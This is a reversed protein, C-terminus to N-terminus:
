KYFLLPAVLFKDSLITNVKAKETLGELIKALKSFEEKALIDMENNTALKVRERCIKIGNLLPIVM